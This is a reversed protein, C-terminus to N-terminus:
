LSSQLWEAVSHSQQVNETGASDSQWDANLINLLEDHIEAGTVGSDSREEDTREEM